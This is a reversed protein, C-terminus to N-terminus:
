VRDMEKSMIASVFIAPIYVLGWWYSYNTILSSILFIVMIDFVNFVNKYFFKNILRM